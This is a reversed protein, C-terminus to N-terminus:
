GTQGEILIMWYILHIKPTLMLFGLKINADKELLDITILKEHGLVSDAHGEKSVMTGLKKEKIFLRHTEKGDVTKRVWALTQGLM